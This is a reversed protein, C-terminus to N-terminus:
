SCEQDGDESREIVVFWLIWGDRAIGSVPVQDKTSIYIAKLKLWFVKMYDSLKKPKIFANHMDHGKSHAM